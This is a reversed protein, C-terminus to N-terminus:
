NARVVSFLHHGSHNSHLFSGLNAATSGTSPIDPCSGHFCGVFTGCWICGHSTQLCAACEKMSACIEIERQTLANMAARSEEPCQRIMSLSEMDMHETYEIPMCRSSQWDWVCKAGIRQGLCTSQNTM